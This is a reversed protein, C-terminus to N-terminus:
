KKVKSTDLDDVSPMADAEEKFTFANSIVLEGGPTFYFKVDVTEGAKGGPARVIMRDDSAFRELTGQRKGFFVKVERPGDKIFRNGMVEVLQGGEADGKRPNIGTVKLKPDEKSCGLVGLLLLSALPLRM